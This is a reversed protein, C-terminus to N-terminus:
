SVQQLSVHIDVVTVVANGPVMVIVMTRANKKVYEQLTIEQHQVSVRSLSLQSFVITFMKFMEECRLM